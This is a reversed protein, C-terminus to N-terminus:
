PAASGGPQQSSATSRMSAVLGTALTAPTAVRLTRAPVGANQLWEREVEAGVFVAETALLGAIALDLRNRFRVATPVPALNGLPRLLTAALALARSPGSRTATTCCVRCRDADAWSRCDRGCEDILTGRHCLVERARVVAFCRCGMREALWPAQVSGPAGLGVHVFATAPRARLWQALQIEAPLDEIRRTVAGFPPAPARLDIREIGEAGAPAPQDPLLPCLWRVALGAARCARAIEAGIEVSWHCSPGAGRTTLLVVDM